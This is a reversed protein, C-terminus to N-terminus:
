ITSLWWPFGEISTLLDQDRGIKAKHVRHIDLSRDQLHNISLPRSKYPKPLTTWIRKWVLWGPRRQWLLSGKRSHCRLAGIAKKNALITKIQKCADHITAPSENMVTTAADKHKCGRLFSETAVQQILSSKEDKHGDM